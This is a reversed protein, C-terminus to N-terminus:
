AKIGLVQVLQKQIKDIIVDPPQTADISIVPYEVTNVLELYASRVKHFFSVSEKEIRDIPEGRNKIRMFGTTPDIDLFIVVDPIFYHESFGTRKLELRLLNSLQMITSSLIGRGGGQYAFTSWESRDSIVWTGKQLQPEIIQTILQLRAAYMLLLETGPQVVEGNLTHQKVLTRIEEGLSTGGPERTVYLKHGWSRIMDQVASLVTTKGAGELGEIVIYKGITTLKTM